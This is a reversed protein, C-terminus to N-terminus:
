PAKRRLLISWALAGQGGEERTDFHTQRLWVFHFSEGFDTRIEEEKVRPPGYHRDENANGALILVHTGPHSLKGLAAVYEAASRRRVGHYCGRDFIFDFPEGDPPALVDALLWRVKVGAERAKRQCLRLASPAIDIGTVEFGQRALYIANTGTGCGLVGARCPKIKGSQVVDKLNSSPRGTDWPPPSERRYAADWRELLRTGEPGTPLVGSPFVRRPLVSRGDVSEVAITGARRDAPPLILRFVREPTSATLRVVGRKVNVEAETEPSAEDGSATSLLYVARVVRERDEGLTYELEEAELRGSPQTPEPACDEPVLLRVDVRRGGWPVTIHGAEMRLRGQGRIRVSVTGESWRVVDDVVYLSPVLHIFRRVLTTRGHGATGARNLREGRVVVYRFFRHHELAMTGRADFQWGDPRVISFLEPLPESAGAQDVAWPWRMAAAILAM